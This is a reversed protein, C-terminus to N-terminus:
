DRPGTRHSRAYSAITRRDPNGSRYRADLLCRDEQGHPKPSDPFRLGWRRTLADAARNRVRKPARQYDRKYDANRRLFEWALDGADLQEIYDYHADQRWDTGEPM